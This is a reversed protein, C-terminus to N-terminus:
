RRLLFEKANVLGWAVDEWAARKDAAAGVYDLLKAKETATPFRSVSALYLEDLVAEPPAVADLLKGIRNDPARLLQHVLPGTILQFAQILGADETRECECTLLRDPKGFVKMFREGMGIETGRRGGPAVAPLAGARLGRPYGNFKVEAGLTRSLADLLQEAELPQVLARSFHSEDAENGPVPSSSLQYTRSTMVHRVFPKVRFGGAAFEKALHDLLAPNVPPNSARFDDNPDVLGRGVLHFWIRNAQARAFFSNEPDAIWDALEGLRDRDPCPVPFASRSASKRVESRPGRDAPRAASGLLKPAADEGTRPLPVEGRHDDFVIQEGVFEHKDLDDKRRNELVRYQVRPFFAVFQHYDDQTWRDFPHNHCRACSVRVGLFVQAVAEARQYPDRVARYFNAPPNAYTSGRATLIERAFETLPRDEAFWTKMWRHFVQVGKRDLSKEENRLLDSWKMAWYEAFEPRSLLHDILRERKDPSPDALFARVADPAPPVGCADLYARRVFVEDSCILSPPIRLAKLQGAVLKDIPHGSAFSSTSPVPRDPIFALRVPMQLGLYRVLVVVEGFQERIVEGTPLAKAVGLTTTDLAALNTVDRSSGDSYHAIATLTVRDAPAVLIREAPTVVLRTATPTDAPDPRCGAAIWAKLIAYETSGALFRIGGEHPVQGSAKKLLLSEAPDAPNTRRALMDRTLSALDFDADQGRLSLRFGGRGTLNGHCPGSNCGGRSFLAM